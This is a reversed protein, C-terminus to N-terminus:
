DNVVVYDREPHSASRCSAASDPDDGRGMDGYGGSLGSVETGFSYRGHGALRVSTGDSSVTSGPPAILISSGLTVCGADNVALKGSVLAQHRAGSDGPPPTWMLLRPLDAASAYYDAPLGAAAFVADLIQNSDAFQPLRAGDRAFTQTGCHDLRLTWTHGASHFAVTVDTFVRQLPCSHPLSVGTPQTNVLAILQDATPGTVRARLPEYKAASADAASRTVTIDIRDVNRLTMAETRDPRVVVEVDLRIAVRDGQRAFSYVIRADQVPDPIAPRFAVFTSAAKNIVTSTGSDYFAADAPPHARVYAAAEAATGAATFYRTGGVTTDRPGGVGEAVFDLAQPAPNTATATWGPGVTVAALRDDLWAQALRKNTGAPSVAVPSQTIASSAPPAVVPGTGPGGAVAVVTGVAAATVAAATLPLVLRRRRGAEAAVLRDDAKIRELTGDPVATDVDRGPDAARLADLADHKM